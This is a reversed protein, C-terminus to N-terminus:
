KGVFWNNGNLMNGIASINNSINNKFWGGIAQTAGTENGLKGIDGLTALGQKTAENAANYNIDAQKMAQQQKINEANYRAAAETSARGAGQQYASSTSNANSVNNMAANANAMKTSGEGTYNSAAQGMNLKNMTAANSIGANFMKDNLAAGSYENAAQKMADAAGQYVSTRIGNNIGESVGSIVAGLAMSGLAM